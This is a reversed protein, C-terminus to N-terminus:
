LANIAAKHILSLNNEMKCKNCKFIKVKELLYSENDTVFGISNCLSSEGLLIEGNIGISPTCFKGKLELFKIAESLSNTSSNCCVSRLNFCNPATKNTTPYNNEIARGQPYMATIRNEMYVNKHEIEPIAMPYYRLDNTIQIKVGLSLIRNKLNENYLFLGNSAIILNEKGREKILSDIIEFFNPHNTPEGGSVIVLFPNTNKIFELAKNFTDLSMHKGDPTADELCHSCKMDCKRTIKLIM